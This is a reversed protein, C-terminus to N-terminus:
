KHTVKVRGVRPYYEFDLGWVLGRVDMGAYFQPGAFFRIGGKPPYDEVDSWLSFTSGTHESMIYAVILRDAKPLKSPKGCIGCTPGWYWDHPCEACEFLEAMPKMMLQAENCVVESRMVAARHMLEIEDFTAPKLTTGGRHVREDRKNDRASGAYIHSPQVCYRRGCLHLAKDNKGDFRGGSGLYVQRHRQGPYGEGTLNDTSLVCDGAVPVRCNFPLPVTNSEYVRLLYDRQRRLRRIVDKKKM